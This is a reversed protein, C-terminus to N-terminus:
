PKGSWDMLVPKGRSNDYLIWQDVLPRYLRVFHRKGADFRRRITAEPVDHGGQRVREAVRQVAADASPLSLFFLEVRYGM